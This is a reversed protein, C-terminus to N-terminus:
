HSLIFTLSFRLAVLFLCDLSVQLMPYVLCLSSSLCFLVVCCVFSFLHVVLVGGIVPHSGLHERICWISVIINIEVKMVAM